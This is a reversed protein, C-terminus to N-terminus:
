TSSAHVVDCIPRYIGEQMRQERGHSSLHSTALGPHPKLGIMPTHRDLGAIPLWMLDPESMAIAASAANADGESAGDFSVAHLAGDRPVAFAAEPAAGGDFLDRSWDTIYPAWEFFGWDSQYANTKFADPSQLTWLALYNRGAGCTLRFRQCTRFYPKALMQKIKAGSYWANWAQERAPETFNCRVVYVFTLRDERRTRERRGGLLEPRPSARECLVLMKGRIAGRVWWSRDTRDAQAAM